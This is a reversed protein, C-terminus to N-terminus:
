ENKLKGTGGFIKKIISSGKGKLYGERQSQMVEREVEEPDLNVLEKVFIYHHTDGGSSSRDAYKYEFCRGQDDLDYFTTPAFHYTWDRVVKITDDRHLILNM